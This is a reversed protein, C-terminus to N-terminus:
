FIHGVLTGAFAARVLAEHRRRPLRTEAFWAFARSFTSDDPVALVRSWGCLRRLTSDCELREILGQTTPMDRVPRAVFARALAHRDAPKRGAGCHDYRVHQEAPVLDLVAVLRHHKGNLPGVEVVAPVPFLEGQFRKRIDSIIDGSPM